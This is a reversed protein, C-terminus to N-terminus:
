TVDSYVKIKIVGKRGAKSTCKVLIATNFSSKSLVCIEMTPRVARASMHTATFTAASKLDRVGM